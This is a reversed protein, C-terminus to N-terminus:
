RSRYIAAGDRQALKEVPIEVDGGITLVGKVEDFRYPMQIVGFVTGPALRSQFPQVPHPAAYYRLKGADYPETFRHHVFFPQSFTKDAKIYPRLNEIVWYYEHDDAALHKEHLTKGGFRQYSDWTKQALDWHWRAAGIIWGALLVCLISNTALREHRWFAILGYVALTVVVSLNLTANFYYTKTQDAVELFNVDSMKWPHVGFWGHWMLRLRASVSDARFTPLALVLPQAGEVVLRLGDAAGLWRPDRVFSTEQVVDNGSFPLARLHITNGTRWALNAQTNSDTRRMSWWVIPTEELAPFSADIRVVAQGDKPTLQLQGNRTASLTGREVILKTDPITTTPGLWTSAPQPLYIAQWFAAALFVFAMAGLARVIERLWPYTGKQTETAFADSSTAESL